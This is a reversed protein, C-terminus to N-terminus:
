IKEIMLKEDDTLYIQSARGVLEAPINESIRYNGAVSVLEAQLSQCFIRAQTDGRAGAMARGRLIGYIHIHGDAIIEAGSSVSSAVILDSKQAYVRQGSRIPLHHLLTKRTDSVVAQTEQEKKIKTDNLIALGISKASQYQIETGGKVGIPVINLVKMIGIIKSFNVESEKPLRSLDIVIPANKFFVPARHISEELKEKLTSIDLNLLCLTPLTFSNAKLEFPMQSQTQSM